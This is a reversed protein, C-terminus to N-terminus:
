FDEPIKAVLLNAGTASLRAVYCGIVIWFYLLVKQQYAPSIYNIKHEGVDKLLDSVAATTYASRLLWDLGFALPVSAILILVLWIIEKIFNKM